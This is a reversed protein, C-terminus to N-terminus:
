FSGGAVNFGTFAVINGKGNQAALKNGFGPPVSHSYLNHGLISQGM